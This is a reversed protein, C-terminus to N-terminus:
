CPNSSIPSDLLWRGADCTHCVLPRVIHITHQLTRGRSQLLLELSTSGMNRVDTGTRTRATRATPASVSPASASRGCGAAACIGSYVVYASYRNVDGVTVRVCGDIPAGIKVVSWAFVM